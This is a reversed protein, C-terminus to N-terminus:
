QQQQQQVNIKNKTADEGIGRRNLLSLNKYPHKKLSIKNRFANSHHNYM